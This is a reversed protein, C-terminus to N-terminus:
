SILKYTTMPLMGSDFNLLDDSRISCLRAYAFLIHVLLTPFSSSVQVFVLNNIRVTWHRIEKTCSNCLLISFPIYYVPSLPPDMGIEDLILSFCVEISSLHFSLPLSLIIVWVTQIIKCISIITRIGIIKVLCILSSYNLNIESRKSMIQSFIFPPYNSKM